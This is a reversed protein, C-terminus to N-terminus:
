VLEYVFNLITSIKVSPKSTIKFFAGSPYPLLSRFKGDEEERFPFVWGYEQSPIDAFPLLPAKRLLIRRYSHRRSFSLLSAGLAENLECCITNTHAALFVGLLCRLQGINREIDEKKREKKRENTREDIGFDLLTETLRNRRIHQQM